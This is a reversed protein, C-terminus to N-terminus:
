HRGSGRGAGFETGRRRGRDGRWAAGLGAGAVIYGALDADVAALGDLTLKRLGGGGGDAGGGLHAM